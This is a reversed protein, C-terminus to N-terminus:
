ATFQKTCVGILLGGCREQSNEVIWLAQLAHGYTDMYCVTPRVNASFSVSVRCASLSVTELCAGLLVFCKM